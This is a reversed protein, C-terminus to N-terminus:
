REAGPGRDGCRALMLGLKEKPDRCITRGHLRDVTQAMGAVTDRPGAPVWAGGQSAHCERGQCLSATVQTPESTASMGFTSPDPRTTAWGYGGSLQQSVLVTAGVQPSEEQSHLGSQLHRFLQLTLTRPWHPTAPDM